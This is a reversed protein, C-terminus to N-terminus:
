ASCDVGVGVGVRRVPSSDDVCHCPSYVLLTRHVPGTRTCCVPKVCRSGVRVRRPIPSEAFSQRPSTRGRSRGPSHNPPSAGPSRHHSYGSFIDTLADLAQPYCLMAVATPRPPAPCRHHLRCHTMVISCLRCRVLMRSCHCWFVTVAPSRRPAPRRTLLGPATAPCLPVAAWM